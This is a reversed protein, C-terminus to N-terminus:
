IFLMKSLFETFSSFLHLYCKQQPIRHFLNILAHLCTVYVSVNLLVICAPVIDNSTVASDVHMPVTLSVFPSVTKEMRVKNHQTCVTQM